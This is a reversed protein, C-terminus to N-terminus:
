VEHYIGGDGGLGDFEAKDFDPQGDTREAEESQNCELLEAFVGQNGDLIGVQLFTQMVVLLSNQSLYILVAM